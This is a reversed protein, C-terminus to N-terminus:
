EGKSCLLEQRVSSHNNGELEKQSCRLAKQAPANAVFESDIYSGECGEFRQVDKRWSEGGTARSLLLAERMEKVQRQVLHSRFHSQICVVADYLIANRKPELIPVVGEKMFVKTEGVQWRQLNLTRSSSLSTSTMQTRADGRKADLLIDHRYVFDCFHKRSPFCSRGISRRWSEETLLSSM